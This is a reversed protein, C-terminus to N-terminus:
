RRSCLSCEVKCMSHLIRMLNSHVNNSEAWHVFYLFWCFFKFNKSQKVKFRWVVVVVFCCWFTITRRWEFERERFFNTWKSSKKKRQSEFDCDWRILYNISFQSRDCRFYEKRHCEWCSFDESDNKWCLRESSFDWSWFHDFSYSRLIFFSMSVILLLCKCSNSFSSFLFFIVDVFVNEIVDVFQHNIQNEISNNM